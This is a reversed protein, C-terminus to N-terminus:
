SQNQNNIYDSIFNKFLKEANSFYRYEKYIFYLNREINLDSIKLPLIHGNKIDESILFKSFISVGIGKKVMNKVIEDDSATIKINIDKTKYGLDSLVDLFTNLTASGKERLIFDYELLESVSIPIDIPKNKFLSPALAVVLEDKALCLSKINKKKIPSGTFGFNVLGEDIAEYVKKSDTKIIKYTIQPNSKSFDYILNHLLYKAPLTSSYIILEEKKTNKKSYTNLIEGELNLMNIAHKYFKKGEETAVVEKGERKILMTGTEQELIQIQKTVAPQSIYLKDAAKSFSKLNIVEIFTRLYTTNM